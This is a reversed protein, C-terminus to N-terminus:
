GKCVAVQDNKKIQIFRCIYVKIVFYLWCIKPKIFYPNNITQPQRSVSWPLRVLILLELYISTKVATLFKM